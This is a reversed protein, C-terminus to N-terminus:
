VPRPVTAAAEVAMPEAGERRASGAVRVEGDAGEGLAVVCAEGPLLRHSPTDLVVPEGSRPAHTVVLDTVESGGDNRIWVRPAPSNFGPVVTVVIASEAPRDGGAAGDAADGAAVEPTDGTPVEPGLETAGQATARAVERDLGAANRGRSSIHWLRTM